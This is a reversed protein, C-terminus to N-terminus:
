LPLQGITVMILFEHWSFIPLGHNKAEDKHYNRVGGISITAPLHFSLFVMIEV